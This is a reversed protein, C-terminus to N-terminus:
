SSGDGEASAARPPSKGDRGSSGDPPSIEGRRNARALSHLLIAGAVGANLSEAGGPMPVTVAGDSRRRVDERVGRGESGVVLAWPSPPSIEAVDTGGAEAVLLQVGIDTLLPEVRSWSAKVVGIHFSSGASARVAKPNWPDVTGDLAVVGDLAFARAARVLTGLNGPDQVGDLILFRGPPRELLDVVSVRPEECVLLVGQPSDTDSIGELEDETLQDVTTVAELRGVVQRGESSERFTPTVLAFRVGAGADLADAVTRPGEVLVLEERPRMRSNRLRGILKERARSLPM